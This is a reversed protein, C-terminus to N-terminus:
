GLLPAALTGHLLYPTADPPHPLLAFLFDLRSRAAPSPHLEFKLAITSDPLKPQLEIVGRGSLNLDGGTSKLSQVILKGHDLAFTAAIVGLRLRPMGAAIRVSTERASLMLTGSDSRLDGAAVRVEGAGSLVGALDAGVARLAPYREIHIDTADFTFSTASGGARRARLRLEGGYAEAQLNIGPSGALLSVLAPTIRAQDSELLPRTSSGSADVLRLGEMNMGFPFHFTLNRTSVSFGMPALVGSLTDAYPFTALLFVLFLVGGAAAYGLSLARGSLFNGKLSRVRKAM